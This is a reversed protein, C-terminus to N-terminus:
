RCINKTNYRSLKPINTQWESIEGTKTNMVRFKIQASAAGTRAGVAEIEIAYSNNGTTAASANQFETTFAASMNGTAGTLVASAATAAATSALVKVQMDSGRLM